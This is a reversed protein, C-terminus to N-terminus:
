RKLESLLTKIECVDSAIDRLVPNTKTITHKNIRDQIGFHEWFWGVFICGFIFGFFMIPVGFWPFTIERVTLLTVFQMCFGIIGIGIAVTSFGMLFRSYYPITRDVITM